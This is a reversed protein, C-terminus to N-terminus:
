TPHEFHKAKKQNPDNMELILRKGFRQEKCLVKASSVDIEHDEEIAHKSLASHSKDKREVAYTHNKLRNGLFQKTQGM